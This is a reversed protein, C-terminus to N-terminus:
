RDPSDDSAKPPLPENLADLLDVPLGQQRIAAQLREIHAATPGISWFCLISIPAAMMYPWWAEVFEISIVTGWVFVTLAVGANLFYRARYGAAINGAGTGPPWPAADTRIKFYAFPLVSAGIAAIPFFSLEGPGYLFMIVGGIAIVVSTLALHIRRLMLLGNPAGRKMWWGLAPVTIMMM